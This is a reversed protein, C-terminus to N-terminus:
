LVSRLAVSGGKVQQQWLSFIWDPADRQIGERHRVKGDMMTAQVKLEFIDEPTEIDPIFYWGRPFSRVEHFPSTTGTNRVRWYAM